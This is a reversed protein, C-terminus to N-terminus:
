GWGSGRLCASVNGESQLQPFLLMSVALDYQLLGFWVEFEPPTVGPVQERDHQKEAVYCSPTSSSDMNSPDKSGPLCFLLKPCLFIIILRSFPLFALLASQTASNRLMGHGPVMPQPFSFLRGATIVWLAMPPHGSYCIASGAGLLGAPGVCTATKYLSWFWRKGCLKCCLLSQLVEPRFLCEGGAKVCSLLSYNDLAETDVHARHELTANM